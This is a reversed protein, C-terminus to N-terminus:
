QNENQDPLPPVLDDHQPPQQQSVRMAYTYDQYLFFAKGLGVLLLISGIAVLLRSGLIWFFFMIALGTIIWKFAPRLVGWNFGADLPASVFQRSAATGGAPSAADNVAAARQQQVPASPQQVYVTQSFKDQLIGPPLEYNNEIAKEIVRYRSRRRLYGFLLVLLVIAVLCVAGASVVNATVRAWQRSINEASTAFRASEEWDSDDAEDSKVSTGLATLVSDLKARDFLTDDISVNELIQQLRAKGITDMKQLTAKVTDSQVPAAQLASAVTLAMLLLTVLYKKM